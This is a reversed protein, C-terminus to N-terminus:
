DTSTCSVLEVCWGNGRKYVFRENSKPLILLAIWSSGYTYLGVRPYLQSLVPLLQVNRTSSNQSYSADKGAIKRLPYNEIIKKASNPGSFHTWYTVFGPVSRSLLTNFSSLSAPLLIFDSPSRPQPPQPNERWHPLESRPSEKRLTPVTLGHLFILSYVLSLKPYTLACDRWKQPNFPLFYALLTPNRAIIHVKTNWFSTWYFKIPDCSHM